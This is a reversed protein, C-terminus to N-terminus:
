GAESIAEEITAKDAGHKRLSNIFPSHYILYISCKKETIKVRPFTIEWYGNGLKVNGQHFISLQRNLKLITCLCM